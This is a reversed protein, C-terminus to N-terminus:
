LEVYALWLNQITIFLFLLLLLIIAYESGIAWLSLTLVLLGIVYRNLNYEIVEKVAEKDPTDVM